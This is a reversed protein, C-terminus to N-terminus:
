FDRSIAGPVKELWEKNILFRTIKESFAGAKTIISLYTAVVDHKMTCGISFGCQSLLSGFLGALHCTMIRDSFLKEKSSSIEGILSPPVPLDTKKLIDELENYQDKIVDCGKLFLEGMEESETTQAFGICLTEIMFLLEIILYLNAIEISNIPRTDGLWGQLYSGKQIYEQYVPSPLHPTRFYLGKELLINVVKDHLEYASSLCDFHYHRLDQRTATALSRTHFELGLRVGVHLYSLIFRDSFLPPLGETIDLDSFGIPLPYGDSTLFKERNSLIKNTIQLAYTHVNIVEDDQTQDRFVTLFWKSMDNIAYGTWLYGLESSTLPISEHNSM